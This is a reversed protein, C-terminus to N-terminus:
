QNTSCVYRQVISARRRAGAPEIWDTMTDVHFCLRGTPSPLMLCDILGNEGLSNFNGLNTGILIRLSSYLLSFWCATRHQKVEKDWDPLETAVNKQVELIRDVPFNFLREKVHVTVAILFYCALTTEFM